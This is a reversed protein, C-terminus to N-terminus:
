RLILLPARTRVNSTSVAQPLATGATEWALLVVGRATALEEGDMVGIAEGLGTADGLGNTSGVGTLGAGVVGFATAKEHEEDM